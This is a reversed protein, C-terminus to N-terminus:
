LQREAPNATGISMNGSGDIYMRTASDTVDFNWNEMLQRDMM